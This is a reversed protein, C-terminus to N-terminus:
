RSPGSSQLLDTLSNKLKPFPSLLGGAQVHTTHTSKCHDWFQGIWVIYSQFQRKLIFIISQNISQDFIYKFYRQGKRREKELIKGIWTCNLNAFNVKAASVICYLASNVWHPLLGVWSIWGLRVSQTHIFDKQTYWLKTELSSIMLFAVLMALSFRTLRPVHIPLNVFVLRNLSWMVARSKM